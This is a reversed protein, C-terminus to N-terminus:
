DRAERKIGTYNRKAHNGKFRWELHIYIYNIM